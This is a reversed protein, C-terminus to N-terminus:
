TSKKLVRANIFSRVCFVLYVASVVCMVAQVVVAQPRLVEGGNMLTFSSIFGKVTGFVGLLSLAAAVHMFHRKAQPKLIALLGMPVVLLGFYAPILATASVGGTLIYSAVGLVILFLGYAITGKEM